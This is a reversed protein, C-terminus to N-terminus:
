NKRDVSEELVKLAIQKRREDSSASSTHTENKISSAGAAGSFRLNSRLNGIDVDDDNWPRVIGLLVSIQYFGDFLPRLTPKMVEPFFEVLAFTDSPDGRITTSSQPPISPNSSSSTPLIDANMGPTIQIYRLYYWSVLFSILAPFFPSMSRKVLSLLLSAILLILAMRKSRFKFMSLVRINAEPIMQKAVVSIPLLMIYFGYQLPNNLFESTGRMINILSVVLLASLNSVTIVITTFKLTESVPKQANLYETIEDMADDNSSKPNWQTELFTIGFYVIVLGSIFQFPSTEVFTSTWLTWPHFVIHSPVLQLSPIIIDEFLIDPTNQVLEKYSQTRIYSTIASLLITLAAYAMTIPPINTYDAIKSMILNADLTM